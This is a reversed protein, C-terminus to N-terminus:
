PNLEPMSNHILGLGLRSWGHLRASFSCNFWWSYYWYLLYMYSLSIEWVPFIDPHRRSSSFSLPALCPFSISWLQITYLASSAPDSSFHLHLYAYSWLVAFWALTDSNWALLKTWAKKNPHLLIGSLTVWSFFLIFAPISHIVHVCFISFWFASVYSLKM